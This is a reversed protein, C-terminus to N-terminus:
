GGCSLACVILIFSLLQGILQWKEMYWFIHMWNIVLQRLQILETNHKLDECKLFHAKNRHIGMIKTKKKNNEFCLWPFPHCIYQERSKPLWPPLIEPQTLFESQIGLGSGVDLLILVIVCLEVWYKPSCQLMGGATTGCGVLSVAVMIALTLPAIYKNGM